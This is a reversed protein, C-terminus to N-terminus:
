EKTTLSGEKKIKVPQEKEDHNFDKDFSQYQKEAVSTQKKLEKGLPSYEFRKMTAAKELLDKQPLVDNGTLFDYKRVNGSSLTSIKTTQRDLNHQAKNRGFKNNITKIKESISMKYYTRRLNYHIVQHYFQIM